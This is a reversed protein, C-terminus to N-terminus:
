TAAKQAARLGEAVDLVVSECVVDGSDQSRMVFASELEVVAADIAARLAVARNQAATWELSLAEFSERAAALERELRSVSAEANIRLAQTHEAADTMDDILRGASKLPTCAENLEVITAALERETNVLLREKDERWTRETDRERELEAIRAKQSANEHLLAAVTVERPEEDPESLALAADREAILARVEPQHMCWNLAVRNIRESESESM